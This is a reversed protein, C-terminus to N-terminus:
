AITLDSDIVSVCNCYEMCTSEAPSTIMGKSRDRIIGDRGEELGRWIKAQAVLPCVVGPVASCAFICPVTLLQEQWHWLM